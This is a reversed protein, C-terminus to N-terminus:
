NRSGAYGLNKSTKIIIPQNAKEAKEFYSVLDSIADDDSCNDIILWDYISNDILFNPLNKFLDLLENGANYVPIYILIKNKFKIM